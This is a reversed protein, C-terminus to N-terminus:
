GVELRKIEARVTNLRIIVDQRKSGTALVKRESLINQKERLWALRRARDDDESQKQRKFIRQFINM